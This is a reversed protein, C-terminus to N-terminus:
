QCNIAITGPITNNKMNHLQDILFVNVFYIFLIM